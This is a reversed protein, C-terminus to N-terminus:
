KVLFLVEANFTVTNWHDYLIMAIHEEFIDEYVVSIERAVGWLM